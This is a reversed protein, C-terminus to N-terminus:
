KVADLIAIAEEPTKAHSFLGEAPEDLFLEEAMRTFMGDLMSYYDDVLILPKSRPLEGVRKLALVQMVEFVTGVGGPLAIYADGMTIMKNQRPSLEAFVSLDKAYTSRYRGGLDLVVGITDGGADSAGHLVEDMMGPGAGSAVTFGAEALLKGMTYALDFYYKERSKIVQAGAFVSVIKNKKM